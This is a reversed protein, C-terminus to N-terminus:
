ITFLDSAATAGHESVFVVAPSAHAPAPATPTRHVAGSQQEALSDLRRDLQALRDSLTTIADDLSGSVRGVYADMDALSQNTGEGAIAQASLLRENLGSIATEIQESVSKRLQEAREEGLAKLEEIQEASVTADTSQESTPREDIRTSLEATTESFYEVMRAAQADFNNLREDLREVATEIVEQRETLTRNLESVANAVAAAVTDHQDSVLRDLRDSIDQRGRETKTEVGELRGQLNQLLGADLESGSSSGQSHEIAEALMKINTELNTRAEREVGIESRLVGLSGRVSEGFETLVTQISRIVTQDITPTTTTM